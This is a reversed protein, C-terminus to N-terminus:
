EEVYTGKKHAERPHRAVRAEPQVVNEVYLPHHLPGQIGLVDLDVSEGDSSGRGAEEDEESESSYAEQGSGSGRRQRKKEGEGAIGAPAEGVKGGGGEGM